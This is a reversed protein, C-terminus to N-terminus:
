IKSLLNIVSLEDFNVRGMRCSNLLFADYYIQIPLIYYVIHM